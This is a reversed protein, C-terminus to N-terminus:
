RVTVDGGDAYRVRRGRDRGRIRAADRRAAAGQRPVRALTTLLERREADGISGRALLGVALERQHVAAPYLDDYNTTVVLPWDLAAVPRTQASPEAPAGELLVSRVSDAVTSGRGLRLL